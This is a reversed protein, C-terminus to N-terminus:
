KSLINQQSQVIKMLQESSYICVGQKEMDTICKMALAVHKAEIAYKMKKEDNLLPSLLQYLKKGALEGRRKELREGMLLSPRVISLAPLSLTKLKDELLGKIRPYFLKSRANANISSIIVFHEVEHSKALKAMTYPYDVDVKIMKEKTKAKKITTGLCCYVHDVCFHEAYEELYDFDIVLEILKEHKMHLPTRVIAIVKEYSDQLLLKLLEQGVLGTAGAILATKGM